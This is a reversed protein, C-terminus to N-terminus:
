KKTTPCCLEVFFNPTLEIVTDTGSLKPNLTTGLMKDIELKCKKDLGYNYVVTAWLLPKDFVQFLIKKDCNDKLNLDPIETKEIFKIFNSDSLLKLVTNGLEQSIAYDDVTM